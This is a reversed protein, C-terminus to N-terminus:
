HMAWVQPPLAAADNRREISFSPLDSTDSGCNRNEDTIQPFLLRPSTPNDTGHGNDADLDDNEETSGAVAIDNPAIWQNKTKPTPAM